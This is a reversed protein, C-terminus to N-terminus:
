RPWAAAFRSLLQAFQEREADTFGALAETVASRRSTRAAELAARGAETITVVSRRADGPDVARDVLGREAADNVLRSARPQDVGIAAAVESIGLRDDASAAALADLLRFRAAGGLSRDHGGPGRGHGGAWPPPGDGWPPTRDGGAWPPRPGGSAHRHGRGPTPRLTLLADEISRVADAQSESDMYTVICSNDYSM